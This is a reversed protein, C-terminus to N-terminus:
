TREYYYLGDRCKLSSIHARNVLDCPFNDFWFQWYYYDGLIYYENKQSYYFGPKENLKMTAVFREFLLQLEFPLKYKGLYEHPCSNAYTKAFTWNMRNVFEHAEEETFPVAADQRVKENFYHTYALNAEELTTYLMDKWNLSLPRPDGNKGPVLLGYMMQGEKSMYPGVFVKGFYSM